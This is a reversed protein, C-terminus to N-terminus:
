FPIPDNLEEPQDVRTVEAGPFYKKADYVEKYKAAILRVVEDIHFVQHGEKVAKEDKRSKIIAIAFDEQEVYWINDPDAKHGAATAEADLAQWGRILASAKQATLEPNNSTVAEDLQQRALEFRHALEPSVLRPLVEIGWKAEMQLAVEDLPKLTEYVQTMIPEVDIMPVRDDKQRMSKRKSM